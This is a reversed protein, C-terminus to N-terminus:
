PAPEIHGSVRYVQSKQLRIEISRIEQGAQVTIPSAANAQTTAPYYTPITTELSKGDAPRALGRPGFAGGTGQARLIYIGPSLNGLLFEGVANTNTGNAVGTAQRFYATRRFVEIVANSVPEGFEDLVKGSIIGQPLLKFEIDNIVEGPDGTLTGQPGPQGPPAPFLQRVYGTKDASLQYRGPQLGDFKFKGQADSVASFTPSRVPGGGAPRSGTQLITVTINARPVPEGSFANVVRGEITVDAGVSAGMQALAPSTFIGFFSLLIALLRLSRNMPHTM